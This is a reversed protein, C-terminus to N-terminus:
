KAGTVSLLCDKEVKMSFQGAIIEIAPKNIPQGLIANALNFHLFDLPGSESFGRSQAKIRGADVFNSSLGARLIKIM